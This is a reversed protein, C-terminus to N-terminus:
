CPAFEKCLEARKEKVVQIAEEETDYRGLYILKKLHRIAVEYKGAHFRYGKSQRNWMNEEATALRLNEIRNNTGNRDIHDIQKGEPIAGFHYVWVLRHASQQQKDLFIYTYGRRPTGATKGVYRAGRLHTKWILNGTEPDYDFREKLYEQTPLM